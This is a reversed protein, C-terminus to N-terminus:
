YSIEFGKHEGTAEEWVVDVHKVQSPRSGKKCKEVMQELKEKPGEFVAEVRGNDLNKVWGSLGLKSANERTWARYFVGQVRGEVFIHARVM